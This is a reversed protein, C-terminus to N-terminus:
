IACISATAGAGVNLQETSGDVCDQYDYTAAQLGVQSVLYNYCNPM